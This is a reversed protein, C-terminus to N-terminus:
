PSERLMEELERILDEAIALKEQVSQTMFAGEWARQVLEVHGRLAEDQTSYRRQEGGTGNASFVISEWLLPPGQDSTNHNIGLFVTSVEVGGPLGSTRGLVIRRRGKIREDVMFAEYQEASVPEANGDADLIYFLNSM